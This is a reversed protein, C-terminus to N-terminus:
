YSGAVSPHSGDGAYLEIQPYESMARRWAEGVPSVAADILSALQLYNETLYDQMDSYELGFNGGPMYVAHGNKRGWTLYLMTKRCSDALESHHALIDANNFSPHQHRAFGFENTALQLSQEQLPKTAHSMWTLSTM